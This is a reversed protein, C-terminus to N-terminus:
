VKLVGNNINSKTPYTWMKKKNELKLCLYIITKLGDLRKPESFEEIELTENLRKMPM